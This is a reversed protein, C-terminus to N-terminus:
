TNWLHMQDVSDLDHAWTRAALSTLFSLEAKQLVGLMGIEGVTPPQKFYSWIRVLDQNNFLM